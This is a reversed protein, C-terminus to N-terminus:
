EKEVIEAGPYYYELIERYLKGLEAFYQAGGGSLGVGHGLRPKGKCGPDDVSPLYPTDKWGWKEEASTTRGGSCTHYPTKIIKNDYMLIQNETEEVAKRWDPSRDTLSQGLYKQFQAPDDSGDFPSGPFKRNEASQYFVAYSRAVLALAKKKEIHDSEVTEGIGLLYDGLSVENIVIINGNEIRLELTGRFRNDNRKGSKDWAPIRTWNEIELVGSEEKPVIRFITAMKNRFKLLPGVKKMEIKQGNKGPFLLEGKHNRVEYPTEGLIEAVNLEKPFSLRIRIIQDDISQDNSSLHQINSNSRKNEGSTTQNKKRSDAKAISRLGRVLVVKAKLRQRGDKLFLIYPHIGREVIPNWRFTALEGPAVMEEEPQITIKERRLKVELKLDEQLWTTNGVNRFRVKEQM